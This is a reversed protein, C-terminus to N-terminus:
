DNLGLFNANNYPNGDCSVDKFHGTVVTGNSRVYPGIYRIECFAESAMTLIAIVAVALMVIKKM